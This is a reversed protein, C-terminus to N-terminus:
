RMRDARGRFVALPQPEQTLTGLTRVAQLRHLLLDASAAVDARQRAAQLPAPVAASDHAPSVVAVSPSDGQQARGL